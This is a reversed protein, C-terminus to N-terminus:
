VHAQAARLERTREAIRAELLTQNDELADNLRGLHDGVQKLLLALAASAWPVWGLVVLTMLWPALARETEPEALFLGSYSAAHLAWTLYTVRPTHRIASCILSLFYYYRFASELGRDYYCLLGIFVAEM